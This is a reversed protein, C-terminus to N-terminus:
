CGPGAATARRRQPREPEPAIRYPPGDIRYRQASSDSVVATLPAATAAARQEPFWPRGQQVVILLGHEDGAPTFLENAAGRYVPSGLERQLTQTFAPVDDVVLAIESINLLSTSDFPHQPQGALDHRAILECINGAADTFYVADANWDAFHFTDAGSPDTILPAREGLWAKAAAFQQAPINFAIHYLCATLPRCATFTLASAGVTLTFQDASQTQLPLGLARTYFERQQELLHTRLCLEHIYM